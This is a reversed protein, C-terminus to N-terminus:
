AGSPNRLLSAVVRLVVAIDTARLTLGEGGPAHGEPEIPPNISM